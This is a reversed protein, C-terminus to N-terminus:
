DDKAWEEIKVLLIGMKGEKRARSEKLFALKGKELGVCIEESNKFHGTTLTTRYFLNPMQGGLQHITLILEVTLNFDLRFCPDPHLAKEKELSLNVLPNEYSVLYYGPTNKKTLEKYKGWNHEPFKEAMEALSLGNLAVKKFNFRSDSFARDSSVPSSIQLKKEAVALKEWVRLSQASSITMSNKLRYETSVEKGNQRQSKKKQKNNKKVLSNLISGLKENTLIGERIVEELRVRMELTLLDPKEDM